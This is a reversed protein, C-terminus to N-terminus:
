LKYLKRYRLIRTDPESVGTGGLARQERSRGAQDAAYGPPSPDYGVGGEGMSVM